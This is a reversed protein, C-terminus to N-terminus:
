NSIRATVAMNHLQAGKQQADCRFIDNCLEKLYM